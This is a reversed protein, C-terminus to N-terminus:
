LNIKIIVNKGGAPGARGPGAPALGKGRARILM